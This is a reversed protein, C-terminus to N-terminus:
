NLQYIIPLVMKVRVPKGRQKGPNWKTLGIVRIAEEDCGSGIGKIIKFDTPSGDRNVIFEAFVTGQTDTKRARQPYKLNKSVFSYFAAYGGIPEAPKEPFSTWGCDSCIEVTDTEFKINISPLLTPDITIIPDTTSITSTLPDTSVITPIVPKQIENKEPSPTPPEKLEQETVPILVITNDEIEVPRPKVKVVETRWEFATIMLAISIGLGIQFFMGSKRHIDKAPNKKLEM